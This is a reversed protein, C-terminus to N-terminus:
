AVLPCSPVPCSLVPRSPVPYSLVPAPGSVPDRPGQGKSAPPMTANVQPMTAHAAHPPYSLYALNATSCRVFEGASCQVPLRGSCLQCLWGRSVAARRLTRAGALNSPRSFTPTNPICVAPGPRCSGQCPKDPALALPVFSALLAPLSPVVSYRVIDRPAVPCGPCGLQRTHVSRFVHLTGSGTRFVEASSCTCVRRQKVGKPDTPVSRAGNAPWGLFVFCIWRSGTGRHKTQTRSNNINGQRGSMNYVVTCVM